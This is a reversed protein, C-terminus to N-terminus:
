TPEFAKIIEQYVSYIQIMYFLSISASLLTCFWSHMCFRNCNHSQKDWLPIVDRTSHMTAEDRWILCCLCCLVFAPSDMLWCASLSGGNEVNHQTCAFLKKTSIQIEEGYCCLQLVTSYLREDSVTIGLCRVARPLWIFPLYSSSFSLLSSSM